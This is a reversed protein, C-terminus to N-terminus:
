FMRLLVSVALEIGGCCLMILVPNYKKVRLVILAGAFLLIGRYQIAGAALTIVGDTFIVPILIALGAGFIMSTIAPRLSKLVGQIVSLNKYYTYLCTLFTVFICSPLIVGAVSFLAGPIGAVQNGAFTAANIAIPGPNMEAIAVLDTFESATLWGYRTVVQSEILPMAAYGGGFSLAGVKLFALFLELYIM